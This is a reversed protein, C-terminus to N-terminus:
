KSVTFSIVPEGSSAPRISLSADTSSDLTQGAAVTIKRSVAVGDTVVSFDVIVASATTNVVKLLVANNCTGLPGVQYYCTVGNKTELLTWEKEIIEVKKPTSAATMAPLTPAMVSLMMGSLLCVKKLKTLKM